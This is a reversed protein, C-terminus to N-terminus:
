LDDDFTAIRTIGHHRCTAAILADNPLLKYDLSIKKSSRLIEKDIYLVKIVTSTLDELIDLRKRIEEEGTGDEWAKKIKHFKNSKIM